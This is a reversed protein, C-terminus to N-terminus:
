VMYGVRTDCRLYRCALDLWSKVILGNVTQTNIVHALSSAM